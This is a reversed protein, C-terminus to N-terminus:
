ALLKVILKYRFSDFELLYRLNRELIEDEQCLSHNLIRDQNLYSKNIKYVKQITDEIFGEDLSLTRSLDNDFEAENIENLKGEFYSHIFSAIKETENKNKLLEKKFFFTALFPAVEFLCIFTELQKPSSISTLIEKLAMYIRDIEELMDFNFFWLKERIAYLWGQDENIQTSAKLISEHLKFTKNLSLLGFIVQVFNNKMIGMFTDSSNTGQTSFLIPAKLNRYYTLINQINQNNYQATAELPKLYNEKIWFSGSVKDKFTVLVCSLDIYKVSVLWNGSSDSVLEPNFCQITADNLICFIKHHESPPTSPTSQADIPEIWTVSAIM